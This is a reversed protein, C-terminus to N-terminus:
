PQEGKRMAALTANAAGAAHNALDELRVWGELSCAGTLAACVLRERLERDRDAPPQAELEAVRKRLADRESIISVATSNLAESSEARSQLLVITEKLADREAVLADLASYYHAAINSPITTFSHDAALSLYGLLGKIDDDHDSV